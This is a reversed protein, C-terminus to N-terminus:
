NQPIKLAKTVLPAKQPNGKRSQMKKHSKERNTDYQTKPGKCEDQPIRCSEYQDRTWELGRFGIKMARLTFCDNCVLDTGLVQYERFGCFM